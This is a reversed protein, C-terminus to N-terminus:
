KRNKLVLIVIVVAALVGGGILVYKMVSSNQQSAVAPAAKAAANANAKAVQANTYGSYISSGAALLKDFASGLASGSSAPAVIPSTTEAM